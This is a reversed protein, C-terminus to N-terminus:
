SVMLTSIFSSQLLIFLRTVFDNRTWSSDKWVHRAGTPSPLTTRLVCSDSSPVLSSHDFVREIQNVDLALAIRREYAELEAEPDTRSLFMSTYLPANTGSGLMGGRGNSVALVTDSAASPGGVTWVAGASIQRNTMTFSGRRLNPHISRRASTRGTIVSHTERLSRLEDNLRTSRHLRRGFPDIASPRNVTTSDETTMRDVPKNLEFSERTTAPPRRHAIYRDFTRAQHNPPTLMGGRAVWQSPRLPSSAHRLPLQRLSDVTSSDSADTSLPQETTSSDQISVLPTSIPYEQTNSEIGLSHSRSSDLKPMLPHDNANTLPATSASNAKSDSRTIGDDPFFKPIPVFHIDTYPLTKHLHVNPTKTPSEEVEPSAPLHPSLTPIGQSRFLKLRAARKQLIPSDSPIQLLSNAELDRVFLCSRTKRPSEPTRPSLWGETSATKSPSLPPTLYGSDAVAIDNDCEDM